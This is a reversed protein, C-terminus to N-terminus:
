NHLDSISVQLYKNKIKVKIQGGATLNEWDIFKCIQEKYFIPAAQNLKKMTHTTKYQTLIKSVAFIHVQKSIFFYIQM